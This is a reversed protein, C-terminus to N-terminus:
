VIAPLTKIWDLATLGVHNLEGAASGDAHAAYGESMLIGATWVVSAIALVVVIWLDHIKEYFSLPFLVIVALGYAIAARVTQMPVETLWHNDEMVPISLDQLGHLGLFQVHSVGSVRVDQGVSATIPTGEVPEAHM